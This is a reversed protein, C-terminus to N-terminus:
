LAEDGLGPDQRLALADDRRADELAAHDVTCRLKGRRLHHRRELQRAQLAEDGLGPDQRLPLADDCRADELPAHAALGPSLRLPSDSTSPYQKSALTAWASGARPAQLGQLGVQFFRAFFRAFFRLNERFTPKPLRTKRQSRVNIGPLEKIGPLKAPVNWSISKCFHEGRSIALKKCAVKKFTPAPLRSEDFFAFTPSVKAM